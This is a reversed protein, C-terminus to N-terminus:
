RRWGARQWGATAGLRWEPAEAPAAPPLAARTLRDVEALVAAVIAISEHRGEAAQLTPAMRDMFATSLHGARFEADAMIRELVPITTRVGVIRYEALARAMREIASARDAGWVILKALLTDYFRPVTYGEYVGSDDRVWPGAAPRLGTITGPSPLWGGFPDEANIRAEIAWGRQRVDAQAFALPEGGAIRLQQHVLDIGTVLETVPHEVQLRTNMELFYFNRDADVLFEVTGANVYGAARALRCAAAGLRERMAADVFSSPSEEVLKQHRRQISCEREGLHIVHGAADALIQVEIHRPQEIVRELYISADGFAASAEGRAMRLASELEAEARVLRMGKGGGGLAAKVMVPYGIERAVRRAEDDSKLPDITGPVAAVDVERALRRAATKSGVARIASAPPGVFVLGAAACTEVFGANEALFGYGPHIAQAGAQRAVGILTDIRLYSEAAPAPGICYAEDAEQVHLAERDVESFVAVTAIGLERCARMVRVAIEGRNAVLVKTLRPM